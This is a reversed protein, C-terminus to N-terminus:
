RAVTTKVQPLDQAMEQLQQIRDANQKRWQEMAKQQTALDDNRHQNMFAIQDRMLKDKAALYAVLKPSSNAPVQAPPPSVLVNNARQQQAIIQALENQRKLLEANQQRFLAFAQPSLTYTPSADRAHQMKQSLIAQNQLFEKMEPSADPPVNPLTPITQGDNVHALRGGHGFMLTRQGQWFGLAGGLVLCIIMSVLIEWQFKTRILIM